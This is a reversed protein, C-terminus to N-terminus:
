RPALRGRLHYQLRTAGRHGLNRGAAANAAGLADPLPRRDLLQAVLTAGFVDGCGTPDGSELVV